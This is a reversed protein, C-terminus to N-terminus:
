PQARRAEAWTAWAELENLNAAVFQQQLELGIETSRQDFDVEERCSVDALALAFERERFSAITAADPGPPGEPLAAWDWDVSLEARTDWGQVIWWEETIERFTQEPNALGAFGQSTMCSAWESNLAMMMPHIHVSELFSEVETHIAEFEPDPNEWALTAAGTCGWDAPGSSETDPLAQALVGMLAENYAALEYQSMAARLADNPDVGMDTYASTAGGGVEGRGDNATLGFGYLEAFERSGRVPGETITVRTTRAMNPIYTFGQEAMCAAVYEESFRHFQDSLEQAAQQTDAAGWIRTTFEDLPGRTEALAVGAAPEVTSPPSPTSTPLPTCGALVALISIGIATACPLAAVRGLSHAAVGSRPKSRHVSGTPTVSEKHLWFGRTDTGYYM